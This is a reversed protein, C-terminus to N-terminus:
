HVTSLSNTVVGLKHPGGGGINGLGETEFKEVVGFFGWSGSSNKNGLKKSQIFSQAM